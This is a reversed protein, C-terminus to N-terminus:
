KSLVEEIARNMRGIATQRAEEQRTNLVPRVCHPSPMNSSGSEVFRWYHVDRRNSAKM